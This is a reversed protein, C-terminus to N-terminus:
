VEENPIVMLSHKSGKALIVIGEAEVSEDAFHVPYKGKERLKVSLESLMEKTMLVRRFGGDVILSVAVNGM